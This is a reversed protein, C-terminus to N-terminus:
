YFHCFCSAWLGIIFLSSKWFFSRWLIMKSVHNATKVFRSVTRQFFGQSKGELYAFSLHLLSLKSLVTKQGWISGKSEYFATDDVQGFFIEFLSRFKQSRHGFITPFFSKSLFKKVVFQDLQCVSFLVSLPVSLNGDFHGFFTAGYGFIFYFFFKKWFVFRLLIDAQVRPLCNHCIQWFLTLGEFHDKPITSHLEALNESFTDFFFQNKSFTRFHHSFFRKSLFIKVKFQPLQCVSLLVSSGVSLLECFRCFFENLAWHHYLFFNGNFVEEISGRPCTTLLKSM